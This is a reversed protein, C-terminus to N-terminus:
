KHLLTKLEREGVQIRPTIGRPFRSAHSKRETIVKDKKLTFSHPQKGWILSVNLVLPVSVNMQLVDGEAPM